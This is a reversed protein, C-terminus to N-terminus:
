KNSEGTSQFVGYAWNQDYARQSGFLTGRQAKPKKDASLTTLQFELLCGEAAGDVALLSLPILAQLTYGGEAPASQARIQPEPEIKGKVSRAGAAPANSGAPALFVQGVTTTGPMSGFVELCSGEWMPDRRTIKPDWVRADLALSDGALAFRLEALKQEGKKIEHAPQKALAAAVAEPSELAALRALPLAPKPKGTMEGRYPTLTYRFGVEAPTAHGSALQILVTQNNGLRVPRAKDWEIRVGYGGRDIALASSPIANSGVDVYDSGAAPIARVRTTEGKKAVYPIMEYAEAIASAPGKSWLAARYDTDALQVDCEIKEDGYTYRRTVHVPRDRVEGSGSVTNGELRANLHESDAAVLPQGDALTGVIGHLHFNAWNARQMGAGYSGALSAGIVTGMGPVTLQCIVGGGYGIRTAFYNDLWEPALRGHYTLMYYTPRRAAFWEDGGNVSVTFNTGPEGKWNDRGLGTGQATRSGWPAAVLDACHLYSYLNLIRDIVAKFKPDGLDAEVARYNAVIYSGYALDHAFHEQCDGSRSIGVGRGWGGSVFRDFYTAALAMVMPDQTAEAAYRLAMPIHSLANGNTREIGRGFALRDGSQIMAEQLIAKVEPSADSERLIRWAPRWYHWGYTGFLYGLNGNWGSVVPMDGVTLQRLGKELDHLAVALVHPDRNIPYNHMLTDCLPPPENNGNLTVFGPREPLGKYLKSPFGFGYKPGDVPQLEKGSADRIILDEPKQNAKLWDHLRVQFPHWFVEEDHYLAGGKLAKAAEPEFAFLAPAGGQGRYPKVDTRTLQIHMMYDGRGPSVEVTLVQDDYQGPSEFKASGSQFGGVAPRDWFVHGDPGTVKFTRTVPQDYEAFGLNLGVTGKPLYVYTRAFQNGNGHLWLPHGALAYKLPKSLRMTAVHDRSGCLMVRYVGSTGGDAHLTITRKPIVALRNPETLSSWRIMPVSGRSYCLTNYWMEHDWGGTEPMFADGAIGDDELVRRDVPRGDPGSLKILMERPGNEMLNWDRVDLTVDFPAGDPNLIYATVGQYFRFTVESPTADANGTEASLSSVGAISACM